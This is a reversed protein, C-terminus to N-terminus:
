CRGKKKKQLPFFKDELCWPQQHQVLNQCDPVPLITTVAVHKLSAVTEFAGYFCFLNVDREAKRTQMFVRARQSVRKTGLKTILNKPKQERTLCMNLAPLEVVVLLPKLADTIFRGVRTRKRNSIRSSECLQRFSRAQSTQCSSLVQKSHSTACM